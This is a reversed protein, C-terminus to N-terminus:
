KPYQWLYDSYYNHLEITIIIDLVYNQETNEFEM